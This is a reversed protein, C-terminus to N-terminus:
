LGGKSSIVLSGEGATTLRAHMAGDGVTADHSATVVDGPFIFLGTQPGPEPLTPATGSRLMAPRTDGYSLRLEYVGTPLAISADAETIDLVRVTSTPSHPSAAARFADSPTTTM